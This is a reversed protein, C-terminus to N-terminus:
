ERDEPGATLETELRNIRRRLAEIERRSAVVHGIFALALGAAMGPFNRREACLIMVVFGSFFFLASLM